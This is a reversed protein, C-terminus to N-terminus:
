VQSTFNFEEKKEYLHQIEAENLRFATGHNRATGNDKLHMRFEIVLKGNKLLDLFSKQSLNQLYYAGVYRFYEADQRKESEAFVLLLREAMKKKLKSLVTEFTYYCIPGDKQHIINVKQHAEDIELKFGQTNFDSARLTIKLAKRKDIDIYGYKEILSKDNLKGKYPEKTFLTVNSSTNIRQTKLEVPQGKYTFDYEELNNEPIGMEHELTHGIATDSTRTAKIFGRACIERLKAKFDIEPINKKAYM